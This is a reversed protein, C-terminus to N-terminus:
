PGHGAEGEMLSEGLPLLPFTSAYLSYTLGFLGMFGLFIALEPLGLPPEGKWISPFVLNYREVWFGALILIAVSALFRPKMKPSRGLLLVFPAAFILVMQLILLSSFGGTTRQIFWITERPLNGYWIVIFQSFWLYTWFVVFAFLLKGLDHFQWRSWLQQNRVGTHWGAVVAVFALLTVWGGVFYYPGWIVSTFGPTLSMAMDTALLTFTSVWMLILLPSLVALRSRSHAAEEADGRWKRGLREILAARWGSHRGQLFPADPRLSYWLFLGSTGIILLLLAGNRLFVGDVTLWQRNIHEEVPHVWPFIHEAGFYLSLFVLFSVPLFASAGEAIRRFDKGWHGKAVQIIAGFVVGAQALATWFLFNYWVNAWARQPDRGVTLVFALAGVVVGGLLLLVAAAPISGRATKLAQQRRAEASAMEGTGAMGEARPGSTM